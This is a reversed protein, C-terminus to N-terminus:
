EMQKKGKPLRQFGINKLAVKFLMIYASSGLPKTKLARIYYKISKLTDIKSYYYGRNCLTYYSATTITNENIFSSYKNLFKSMIQGSWFQREEVNKSMQGLHGVRYLLLPEDVFDFKFATSLRLWLDWDIGMKFAEDFLGFQELCKQRVISSSFPVFNDIFLDKTIKGRKPQLYKGNVKMNLKKGHEDIYSARSFVVGVSDSLFLRIQKELKDKVWLDDADLFAIYKGRSNRIGANKANAQGANNQQIYSFRPNGLYRKVVQDTDDTSGDNVLIIEFDQYTQSLVSQIAGTLYRGYNYCTMVVSVSPIAM